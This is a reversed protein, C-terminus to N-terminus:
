AKTLSSVRLEGEYTVLNPIVTDGVSVDPFYDRSYVSVTEKHGGLDCTDGCHYLLYNKGDKNTKSEIGLVVM